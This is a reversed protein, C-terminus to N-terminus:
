GARLIAMSPRAAVTSWWRALRPYDGLMSGEPAQVFYDIIPAAHLDALSLQDSAIWPADGASQNVTSSMPATRSRKRWSSPRHLAVGKPQVM